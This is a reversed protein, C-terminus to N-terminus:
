SAACCPADSARARSAGRGTPAARLTGRDAAMVAARLEEAVRHQDSHTMHPFLPIAICAERARESESLRACGSGCGCTGPGSGCSWPQTSYAPERHVCMIGRRTSVGRQLMRQMVAQQDFGDPLRVCYSQWNSRAWSPEDPIELVRVDALSKDYRQALARRLMVIEPLRKLQERGIAAQIDTMQYTSGLLDYSHPAGAGSKHHVATSVSMGGLRLQRFLRDWEAENTTIMGGDGTTIVSRPGLSFCAVDGQPRGVKQWEGDWRIESGVASACDEVVGLGNRRGVRVIETLDCPMGLAHVCLIARTRPTIAREILRPDMTFTGPEVDVFVPTAGCYRISNATAVFSHSVTIVEDGPQVGVALLGLHLATTCNSVACAFTSGVFAAFEAEFAEVQPGQTVCGSLITRRAAEAEPEGLLPLAVPVVRDQATPQDLTTM